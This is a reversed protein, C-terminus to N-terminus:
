MLFHAEQLPQHSPFSSATRVTAALLIPLSSPGGVTNGNAGGLIGIGSGSNALAAMGAVDVGIHDGEIVNTAGGNIDIGDGLNGSVVDAQVVTTGGITNNIAGTVVIGSGINAVITTGAANVGIKNGEILNGSTTSGQVPDVADTSGM